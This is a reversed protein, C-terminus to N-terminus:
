AQNPSSRLRSDRWPPDGPSRDGEEDAGHVPHVSWAAAQERIPSPPLSSRGHPNSRLGRSRRKPADDNRNRDGASGPAVASSRTSARSAGATWSTAAVALPSPARVGSLLPTSSDSSCYSHRWAPPSDRFVLRRGGLSSACLFRGGDPSSRGRRRRGEVHGQDM